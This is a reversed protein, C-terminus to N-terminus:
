IRGSIAELCGLLRTMDFPKPLFRDLGAHWAETIMDNAEDGSTMVFGIKCNKPDDRLTRLLELGDMQPMHLDAIVVNAPYRALSRLAQPGDV